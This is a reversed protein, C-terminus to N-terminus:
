TAGRKDLFIFLRNRVLFLHQLLQSIGTKYLEDLDWYWFYSDHIKQRDRCVASCINKWSSDLGTDEDHQELINHCNWYSGSSLWHYSQCPWHYKYRLRGSQSEPEVNRDLPYQSSERRGSSSASWEGGDLASSLFSHGKAGLGWSTKIAHHM